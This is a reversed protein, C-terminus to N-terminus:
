ERWLYFISCPGWTLPKVITLYMGLTSDGTPTKRLIVRFDYCEQTRCHLTTMKDPRSPTRLCPNTGLDNLVGFSLGYSSSELEQTKIRSFYRVKIRYSNMFM